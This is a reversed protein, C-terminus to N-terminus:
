FKVTFSYKPKNSSITLEKKSSNWNMTQFQTNFESFGHIKEDEFFFKVQDFNLIINIKYDVGDIAGTLTAFTDYTIGLDDRLAQAASLSKFSNNM